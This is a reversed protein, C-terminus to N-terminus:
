SLSGAAARYWAPTPLSPTSLLLWWHSGLAAPDVLLSARSRGQFILVAASGSGEAMLRAQRERQLDSWEGFGLVTLAARQWRGSTLARPSTARDPTPWCTRSCRTGGTATCRGPRARGM